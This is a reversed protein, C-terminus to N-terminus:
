SGVDVASGRLAQLRKDPHYKNKCPQGEARLVTLTNLDSIQSWLTGLGVYEIHSCVKGEHNSLIRKAISETVRGHVERLDRIITTYRTESDPDRKTVDEFAKMEPHVFHNTAVIYREGGEPRRVRVGAPCAEVVAMDGSTDAILYNNATLFKTHALFDVAEATTACKDLVYRVAVPFNVGPAGLQASVFHMSIGVGKENLGDERGLFVDTNGLSAHAGKPRTLYSECYKAFRYYFDYNRGFVVKSDYASAFSSCAVPKGFGITLIFAAVKEYPENLAESLGRVEDLIEPFVRKVEVECQMGLRLAEEGVDPLKFGHKRLPVGYKAGMQHYTGRLRPHLMGILWGRSTPSMAFITQPM